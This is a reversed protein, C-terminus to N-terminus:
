WFGATDPDAPEPGSLFSRVSLGALSMAALGIISRDIKLRSTKICLTRASGVPSNELQGQRAAAMETHAFKLRQKIRSLWVRFCEEPSMICHRSAPRLSPSCRAARPAQHWCCNRKGDSPNLANWRWAAARCSLVRMLGSYAVATGSSRDVSLQQVYQAVVNRVKKM